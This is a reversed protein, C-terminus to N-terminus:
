PKVYNTLKTDAQKPKTKPIKTFNTPHFTKLTRLTDAYYWFQASLQTDRQIKGWFSLILPEHIKM